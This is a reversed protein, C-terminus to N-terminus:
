LTVCSNVAQWRPRGLCGHAFPPGPYMWVIQSAHFGKAILDKGIPLVLGVNFVANNARIALHTPDLPATGKRVITVPAGRPHHPDAYIHSLAFTCLFALAYQNGLQVM